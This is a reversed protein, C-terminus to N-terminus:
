LEVSALEAETFVEKALDDIRDEDTQKWNDDDGSGAKASVLKFLCNQFFWSPDIKAARLLSVAGAGPVTSPDIEAVPVELMDYVWLADQTLTSCSSQDDTKEQAAKALSAWQEANGLRGKTSDYKRENKPGGADSRAVDKRTVGELEPRLPPFQEVTMAHAIRGIETMDKDPNESALQKKLAERHAKAQDWRGERIMREKFRQRGEVRPM